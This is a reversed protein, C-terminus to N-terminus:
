VTSLMFPLGCSGGDKRWGLSKSPPSPMKWSHSALSSRFHRPPVHTPLSHPLYANLTFIFIEKKLLPLYVHWWLVLSSCSSKCHGKMAGFGGEQKHPVNHEQERSRCHFVAFGSQFRGQTPCLLVRVNVPFKPWIDAYLCYVCLIAINNRGSKRDREEELHWCRVPGKGRKIRWLFVKLGSYNELYIACRDSWRILLGVNMVIFFLMRASDNFLLNILLLLWNEALLYLEAHRSRHGESIGVIFFKVKLFYMVSHLILANTMTLLMVVTKLPCDTWTNIIDSLSHMSKKFIEEHM